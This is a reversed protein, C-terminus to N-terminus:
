TDCGLGTICVDKPCTFGGVCANLCDGQWCAVCAPHKGDPCTANGGDNGGGNLECISDGCCPDAQVYREIARSTEADAARDVEARADVVAASTGAPGDELQPRGTAVRGSVM